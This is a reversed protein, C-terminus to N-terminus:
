TVELKPWFPPRKNSLCSIRYQTETFFHIEERRLRLSPWFIICTPTEPKFLSFINTGLIELGTKKRAPKQLDKRSDAVSRIINAIQGQSRRRAPQTSLLFAHMGKLFCAQAFKQELILNGFM